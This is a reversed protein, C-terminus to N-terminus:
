FAITSSAAPAPKHVGAETTYWLEGHLAPTMGECHQEFLIDMEAVTAAQTWTLSKIEFRGTLTNCGRGDGSVDIGPAKGTVFPAREASTFMGPVLHGNSPARFDLYWWDGLGSVSARLYSNTGGVSLDSEKITWVKLVGGGIYDGTDSQFHMWADAAPQLTDATSSAPQPQTADGPTANANPSSLGQVRVVAVSNLKSYAVSGLFTGTGVVVLAAGAAVSTLTARHSPAHAIAYGSAGGAALLAAVFLGAALAFLYVV